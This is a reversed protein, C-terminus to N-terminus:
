FFLTTGFQSFHCSFQDSTLKPNKSGGGVGGFFIQDFHFIDFNDWIPQFPSSIPQFYNESKKVRGGEWSKPHFFFFLFILTTGFQSFHWWWQQCFLFWVQELNALVFNINLGLQPSFFNDFILFILTTGFQGFPVWKVRWGFLLWFYVHQLGQSSVTTLQLSYEETNYMGHTITLTLPIHLPICSHQLSPTLTMVLSIPIPTPQREFINLDKM